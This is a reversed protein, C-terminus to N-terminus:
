APADPYEAMMVDLEPRSPARRLRNRGYHGALAADLERPTMAWFVPPPLKLVGFGFAMAADWNFPERKASM